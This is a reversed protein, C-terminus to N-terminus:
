DVQRHHEDLLGLGGAAQVEAPADHEIAGAEEKEREALAALHLARLHRAIVM